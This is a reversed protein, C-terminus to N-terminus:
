QWPHFIAALQLAAENGTLLSWLSYYRDQSNGRSEPIPRLQVSGFFTDWLKQLIRVGRNCIGTSRLTSDRIGQIM